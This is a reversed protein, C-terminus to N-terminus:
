PALNVGVRVPAQTTVTVTQRREGLQPHRWIVEHQGIPVTLNALPTTGVARGDVTVEAWPVANVSLSGNPVFVVVAAEAGAKVDVTVTTRYQLAASVLEFQHRGTPVMLRDTSTTGVLRGGEFVQLEFPADLSVFGGVSGSVPTDGGLSVFVAATGGATVEVPRDITTTGRSLSVVHPGVDIRDLVLPTVGRAEGDVLVRAGPPNSSIDLRGAPQIPSGLEIFQSAVVSSEVTFPMSRSGTDSRMEVTHAGVPLTLTIPTVGREVGDVFVRTGRPESDFQARGTSAQVGPRLGPVAFFAVLAGLIMGPVLVLLLTWRSRTTSIRAPLPRSSAKEAGFSDLPNGAIAPLVVPEPGETQDEARDKAALTDGPQAKVADPEPTASPPFLVLRSPM